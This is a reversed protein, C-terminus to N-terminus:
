VPLKEFREQATVRRAEQKVREFAIKQVTIAAARKELIGLELTLQAKDWSEGQGGGFLKKKLWVMQLQMQTLEEELTQIRQLAQELTM